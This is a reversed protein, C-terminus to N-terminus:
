MGLPLQAWADCSHLGHAAVVSARVGQLEHEVVLSAVGALLGCAATLSYGGQERCHSLARM